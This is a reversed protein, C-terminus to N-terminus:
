LLLRLILIIMKMQRYKPLSKIEDRSADIGVMGLELTTRHIIQKRLLLGLEKVDDPLSKLYDKYLGSYTYQSYKRYHKLIKANM